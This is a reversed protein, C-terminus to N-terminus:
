EANGLRADYNENNLKAAEISEKNIDIGIIKVKPDNKMILTGIIGIGCGM